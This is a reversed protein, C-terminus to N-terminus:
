SVGTKEDQAEEALIRVVWRLRTCVTGLVSLTPWKLGPDGNESVVDTAEAGAGLM